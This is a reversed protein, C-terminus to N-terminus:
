ERRKNLMKRAMSSLDANYFGDIVKRWDFGAKSTYHEFEEESFMVLRDSDFLIKFIDNPDELREHHKAIFGCILKVDFPHYDLRELLEKAIRPGESYQEEITSGGIDHLVALSFVIDKWSEELDYKGYNERVFNLVRLTHGVGLENGELYPKALELLRPYKMVSIQKNKIEMKATRLRGTFM